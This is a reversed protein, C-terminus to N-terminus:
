SKYQVGNDPTASLHADVGLIFSLKRVFPDDEANPDDAESLSPRDGSGADEVKEDQFESENTSSDILLDARSNTSQDYSEARNCENSSTTGNTAPEKPTPNPIAKPTAKPTLEVLSLSDEDSNKREEAKRHAPEASDGEDRSSNLVKRASEQRENRQKVWHKYIEQQKHKNKASNVANQHEVKRENKHQKARRRDM